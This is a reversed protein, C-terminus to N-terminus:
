ESTLSRQSVWEIWCDIRKWLLERTGAFNHLHGMAPCEFLDISRTSLYARPEGKLDAVVDREAVAILVPVEVAAAESAFIGPTMICEIVSDPTTASIWPSPKSDHAALHALVDDYFYLWRNVEPSRNAIVEGPSPEKRHFKRYATLFAPENLM